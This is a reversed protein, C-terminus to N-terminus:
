LGMYFELLIVETKYLCLRIFLYHMVTIKEPFRGYIFPVISQMQSFSPLASYDPFSDGESIITDDHLQVCLADIQQHSCYSKLKEKLEDHDSNIDSVIM